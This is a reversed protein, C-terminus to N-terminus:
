VNSGKINCGDDISEVNFGPFNLEHIIKQKSLQLGKVTLIMEPHVRGVHWELIQSNGDLFFSDANICNPCGINTKFKLNGDLFNALIRLFM